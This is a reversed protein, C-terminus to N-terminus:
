YFFAFFAWFMRILIAQMWLFNCHANPINSFFRIKLIYMEASNLRCFYASRHYVLNVSFKGIQLFFSTEVPILSGPKITLCPPLLLKSSLQAKLCTESQSSLWCFHVSPRYGQFNFLLKCLFVPGPLIRVAAM